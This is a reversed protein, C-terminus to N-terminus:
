RRRKWEIFADPIGAVHRRLRESVANRRAAGIFDDFRARDCLFAHRNFEDGRLYHIVRVDDLAVLDHNVLVDDNACNLEHGLPVVETGAATLALTLAIQAAFRNGPLADSATRLYRAMVPAITRFAAANFAVFGYNFYPPCLGRSHDVDMSYRWAVSTDPEGIERLLRRWTAGSDLDRFPSYHAQLGAIAPRGRDLQGLLEDFRAVPCIDADCLVIVDADSPCAYRGLGSAWPPAPASEYVAEPVVYWEVPYSAAWANDAAVEEPAPREGVSVQIKATSYPPGLRALSQALLRIQSYFEPKPSIPPRFELRM